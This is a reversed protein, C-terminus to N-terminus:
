ADSEGTSSFPLYIRFSDKFPRPVNLDAPRLGYKLDDTNSDQRQHHDNIEDNLTLDHMVALDLRHQQQFLKHHFHHVLVVM